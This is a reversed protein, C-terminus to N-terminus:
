RVDTQSLAIVTHSIISFLQLSLVIVANLTM